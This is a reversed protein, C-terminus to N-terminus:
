CLFKLTFVFCCMGTTTAADDAVNFNSVVENEIASIEEQTLSRTVSKTVEFAAVLGTMSPAGTPVATTPAVIPRSTPKATM